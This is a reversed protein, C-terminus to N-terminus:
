YNDNEEFLKNYIIEHVPEEFDKQELFNSAYFETKKKNIIFQNINQLSLYDTSKLSILKVNFMKALKKQDKLYNKSCFSTKLLLINKKFYIGLNLATSKHTLVMSSHKILLSTNGKFMTTGQYKNEFYSSKPHAAVLIRKNFFKSLKRLINSVEKYYEESTFGEYSNRREIADPHDLGGEDLFVLYSGLTNLDYEQGSIDLLKSSSLKSDRKFNLYDHHPIPVVNSSNKFYLFNVEFAKKSTLFLHDPLKIKKYILTLKNLFIKIFRYFFFVIPYNLNYSEPIVSSILISWKRKKHSIFDIIWFNRVPNIPGIILIRANPLSENFNEISKRDKFFNLNYDYSNKTELNSLAIVEINKKRFYDIGFKEHDIERWIGSKLIILGKKNNSM